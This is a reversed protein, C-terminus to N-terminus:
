QPAAGEPIKLRLVYYTEAPVSAVAYPLPGWNNSYFGAGWASNMTAMGVGAGFAVESMSEVYNEPVARRGTNGYPIVLVDGNGVMYNAIDVPEFGYDQMYYQFGWHGQFSVKGGPASVRDRVYRAAERSANATAADAATAWLAVAGSAALPVVLAARSFRRGLDELVDLRRALLIAVAPIMPLISRGNISWNVFSAFVWTGAIWLLLLLSNADRRRLWDSIALAMAAVGGGVFLAMQAGMVYPHKFDLGSRLELLPTVIAAVSVVGVILRKRWMLPAFTIAPFACGGVFSLGAFARSIGFGNNAQAYQTAGGLLGLGYLAKTGFQYALLAAVPLLLYLSRGDFRKYRAITYALLLPILAVAFYKTVASAAILVSSLVLLQQKERDLGELWLLVAFIFSATMMTDCMVTASSVLYGPAVLTAVAALMPRRTFKRALVYTGLVAALSVLLFGAHLAFESWGLIAAVAATYYSALPPNQTVQWMPERVSDWNVEFGFPNFPHKAINRAEWIFLTDDINFAKGLFPTLCLLVLVTLFVLSQIRNASELPPSV